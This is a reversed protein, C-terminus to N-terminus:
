RKGPLLNGESSFSTKAPQSIRRARSLDNNVLLRQDTVESVLLFTETGPAAECNRLSVNRGRTLAVAAGTAGKSGQKGKFGDVRLDEFDEAEIGHSFFDSLPEVWELEFDRIRVGNVYRLFMGPIDHKFIAKAKDLTPRLDFNGGYSADLRSPLLTLHINDFCLDEFVTEKQGHVVIGSESRAVINSFRVNRIVGSTVNEYIPVASVHIPEGNGWWHGTHLRTDITINSFLVNEITGQDRTFIGLGRNSGYIVLNQFVLNRINNAGYGVRIGSSRSQITCNSVTVNESVGKKSGFGTVCIGDDGARIDCDSIRINRSTTCHIGDNNAYPLENLIPVGSIEAGDTDAIHITWMPSDKVIVDRMLITRCESFVFMNGPRDKPLVPGDGMEKDGHIYAKGQRTFQGDFDDEVRKKNLDMFYTGNGDLVGHGTISVNEANRALVLGYRSEGEQLYDALNDSGKLVAGSDLHLNVNSLLRITGSRFEGSPVWVTGGGSKACAEIAKNIAQTNVTRGDGKAGYDVINFVSPQARIEELSGVLLFWSLLSFRAALCSYGNLARRFRHESATRTLATPAATIRTGENRTM